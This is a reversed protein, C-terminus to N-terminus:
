LKIKWKLIDIYWATETCLTTVFIDCDYMNHINFFVYLLFIFLWFSFNQFFFLKLQTALLLILETRCFEVKSQCPNEMSNQNVNSCVVNCCPFQHKLIIFFSTISVYLSILTHYSQRETQTLQGM